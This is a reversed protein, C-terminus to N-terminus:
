ITVEASLRIDELSSGVHIVYNGPVRVFGGEEVSWKSFARDTLIIKVQKREGPRLSIKEFGKLQKVPEEEGRASEEVYLQVTEKGAMKGTNEVELTVQWIDGADKRTAQRVNEADKLTGQLVDGADKRREMYLNGYRFETYSLGHGFCFQVPVGRAEYYRYGVLLGERYEQTVHAKMREKEAKTLERAPYGGLAAAGCNELRYPLSEPLKGSPNIEGFLVEALANGGEMGSYWDWVIAKARDKWREMSVPSGARMVVVADPKVDLVACILADQGYPLTLDKRDYGEVDYDHNLGGILIVEDAEKALRVAEERLRKQERVAWDNEAGRNKMFADEAKEEDISSKQWNVDGGIEKPAVYYGRAFTVECNGGLLSKIGMLPSVEYLAKVEASGGGAAHLREANDGIVLLKRCKERRLPLRNRENKLLIVSERAVELAAERHKATNYSGSKRETRPTERSKEGQVAGHCGDPADATNDIMKLRLMLRLINRVKEDVAEEKVKGERVAELLPDALYYADFDNTVSMEVDVSAEAARVTDHLAGWDTVVLGDFGWERRLIGDLLMKNECCHEGRFLNYAGMLSLVGGEKVAAEFGPLYIERLAREDIEVNVWLREMEQNNLAFHKVCAAVDAEQIGRIMPVAMRSILYPDESMYEFNRGCVPVRKINIGPALIVDKGRGRAEEGLVQGARYSLERNWTAAVASNCPSYTVYDDSNGVPIWDDNQFEQRVGMPGDSFKLAPIGLRRVGGSCFLGAGHIMRVKEELTLEKLLSETRERLREMM